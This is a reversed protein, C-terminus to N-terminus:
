YVWIASTAAQAWSYWPAFWFGILLIGAMCAWLAVRWATTTPAAIKEEPPPQLYIVKLVNLYYYLGVVANFVGVLVLWIMGREVAAAFVLLKAFFGAFPPIGGLSLMAALMALGL